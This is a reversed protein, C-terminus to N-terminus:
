GDRLSLWRIVGGDQLGVAGFRRTLRQLLHGIAERIMAGLEIQAIAVWPPVMEQFTLSSARVMTEPGIPPTMPDFSSPSAGARSRRNRVDAAGGEVHRQDGSAAEAM